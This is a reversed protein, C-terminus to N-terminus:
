EEGGLTYEISIPKVTTIPVSTDGERRGMILGLLCVVLVVAVIVITYLFSLKPRRSRKRM